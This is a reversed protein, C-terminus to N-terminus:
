TDKRINPLHSKKPKMSGSLLFVLGLLVQLVIAVINM